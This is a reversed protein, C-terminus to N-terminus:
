NKEKLKLKAKDTLPKALNPVPKGTQQSPPAEVKAPEVYGAPAVGCVGSGNPQPICVTGNICSAIRHPTSLVMVDRGSCIQAAQTGGLANVGSTSDDCDEDHNHKDWVEVNGPYRNADNDDCDDGGCYMARAGDGDRDPCATEAVYHDTEENCLQGARCVPNRDAVCGRADAGSTGPQCREVGNCFSRDNCQSDRTCIEAAFLAPTFLLAVLTSAVLLSFGLPFAKLALLRSRAAM